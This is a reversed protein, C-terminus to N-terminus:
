QDGKETSAKDAKKPKEWGGERILHPAASDGVTITVKLKPHYLEVAM